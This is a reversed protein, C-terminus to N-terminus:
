PGPVEGGTDSHRLHPGDRRAAQVAKITLLGCPDDGPITLYTINPTDVHMLQVTPLNPAKVPMIVQPYQRAKTRVLGACIIHDGLGMHPLIILKDM